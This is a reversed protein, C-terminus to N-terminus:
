GMPLAALYGVAFAVVILYGVVAAAGSSHEHVGSVTQALYVLWVSPFVYRQWGSSWMRGIEDHVDEPSCDASRPM